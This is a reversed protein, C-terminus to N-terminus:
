DAQLKFNPPAESFQLYIQTNERRASIKHKSQLWSILRRSLFAWIFKVEYFKQRAWYLLFYMKKEVNARQFKANWEDQM